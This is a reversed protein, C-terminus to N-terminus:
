IFATNRQGYSAYNSVRNHLSLRTMEAHLLGHSLACLAVIFGDVVALSGLGLRRRSINV